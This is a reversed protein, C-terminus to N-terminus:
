APLAAPGRASGDAASSRPCRSEAPESGAGAPWKVRPFREGSSPEGGLGGAISRLPKHVVVAPPIIRFPSRRRSESRQSMLGRSLSRLGEALGLKRLLPSQHRQRLATPAGIPEDSGSLGEASSTSGLEQALARLRGLRQVLFLAIAPRCVSLTSNPAEAQRERPRNREIAVVRGAM